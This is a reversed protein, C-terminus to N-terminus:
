LKNANLLRNLTHTKRYALMDLTFRSNIDIGFLRLSLSGDAQITAFKGNCDMVLIDPKQEGKLVELMLCRLEYENLVNRGVKYKPPKIRTIKM